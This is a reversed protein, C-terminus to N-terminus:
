GPIAGCQEAYYTELNGLAPSFDPQAFAALAAPDTFLSNYDYGNKALVEHITIFADGVTQLDDALEAPITKALQDIAAPIDGLGSDEGTFVEGLIVRFIDCDKLDATNLSVPPASGDPATIDPITLDPIDPLTVGPPLTIGSPLTIEPISLDSIDPLTVGPPLSLDTVDPLTVGPPVTEGPGPPPSGHGPTTPETPEAVNSTTITLGSDSSCAALGILGAFGVTLLAIKM